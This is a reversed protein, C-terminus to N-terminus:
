RIMVDIEFHLRKNQLQFLYRKKARTVEPANLVATVLNMCKLYFTFYLLLDLQGVNLM